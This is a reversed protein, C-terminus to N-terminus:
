KKVAVFELRCKKLELAGEPLPIPQTKFKESRQKAEPGGMSIKRIEINEFGNSELLEFISKENQLFRVGDGKPTFGWSGAEQDSGVCSGILLGGSKLMRSLRKTLNETQEKSLVHFVMQCIVANFHLQFADVLKNTSGEPLPFAQAFDDFVTTIGDLRTSAHALNDMFFERGANWYGDHIDSVTISKQDVGELILNRVEQGFCTGMDMVTAGAEKLKKLLTEYGFHRSLRPRLFMLHEICRYSHYHSKCIQWLSLVHSRLLPLDACSTWKSLFDLDPDPLLTLPDPESNQTESQM